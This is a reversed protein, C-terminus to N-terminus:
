KQREEATAPPSDYGLRAQYGYDLTACVTRSDPALECSLAGAVDSLDLYAGMPIPDRM